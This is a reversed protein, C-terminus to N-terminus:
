LGRKRRIIYVTSLLAIFALPAILRWPTGSNQPPIGTNPLKPVVPTATVTSTATASSSPSATAATCTPVSITNTDLTVAGNRALVRGNVTAGTTLTASTLALITGQFTSNTGLTASSGVKWFVHCAQAGRTLVVHSEGATILTSATKFIFVASPDNQADLTVTGTIGFTGDSSDYIGANKTTGGLETAVTTVPNQGAADNFATVLDTKAGQTVSDGAHNISGASLLGPPFGTISTTAFSGINGTIVSAGTNTIGSGALIAFTSATGLGVSTPGAAYALSAALLPILFLPGFAAKITKKM